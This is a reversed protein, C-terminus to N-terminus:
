SNAKPQIMLTKRLLHKDLSWVQFIPLILTVLLHMYAHFGGVENMWDSITYVHREVVQKDFDLVFLVM